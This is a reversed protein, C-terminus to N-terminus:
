TWPQHNRAFKLEARINKSVSKESCIEFNTLLIDGFPLYKDTNVSHLLLDVSDVYVLQMSLIFMTLMNRCFAMTSELRTLAM